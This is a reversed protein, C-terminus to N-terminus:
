TEPLADAVARCAALILVAVQEGGGADKQHMRHSFYIESWQEIDALKGRAYGDSVVGRLAFM